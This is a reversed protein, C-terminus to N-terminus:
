AVDAFMSTQQGVAEPEAERLYRCGSKFYSAKLDSGFFRRRQKLAEVGVSAVGAFPDYVRENANTWLAIARECVDLPLPCMHKEDRDDRAAEVNLVRKQDISMWVPSAVEQWQRLPYEERTHQVPVYREDDRPWRRFVCLYEALGQRCFSGDLRLTKYLLGHADTKRQETVPCKWITVKSHLKFGGRQEVKGGCVACFPGPEGIGGCKTCDNLCNEYLRAIEGPFNRLGSRGDAGIYDVLDKCHVVVLRGAATLRYLERVLFGYHQFFAADDVCNGMDLMSASYCYLNAFPPSHVCLDICSDPLQKAFSVCDAQYMAWGVGHAEADVLIKREKM